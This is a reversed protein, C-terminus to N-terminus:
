RYDRMVDPLLDSNSSDLIQCQEKRYGPVPRPGAADYFTVTEREMDYPTWASGHGYIFSLVDNSYQQAFKVESTMRVDLGQGRGQPLVYLMDAAHCAAGETCARHTSAGIPDYRPSHWFMGLYSKGGTRVMDRALARADCTWIKDTLIQHMMNPRPPPAIHSDVLTQLYRDAVDDLEGKRVMFGVLLEPDQGEPVVGFSENKAVTILVPVKNWKGQAILKRPEGPMLSGDVVTHWGLDALAEGLNAGKTDQTFKLLSVINRVFAKKKGPRSLAESNWDFNWLKQPAVKRLCRLLKEGKGKCRSREIMFKTRDKNATRSWMDAPPSLLVCRHFLGESLPSVLHSMIIGGGESQGMLTVSSPDGGFAGIHRQVWHLLLQQDMLGLNNTIGSGTEGYIWGFIGLRFDFNIFIVPFRSSQVILDGQRLTEHGTGHQNMGGHFYIIVPMRRHLGEPVWVSLTLCDEAEGYIGSSEAGICGPGFQTANLVQPEWPQKMISKAFREPPEAYPINRFVIYGEEQAGLIPGDVTRVM